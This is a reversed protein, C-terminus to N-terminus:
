EIIRWMDERFLEKGDATRQLEEMDRGDLYSESRWVSERKYLIEYLGEEAIQGYAENGGLVHHFFDAM